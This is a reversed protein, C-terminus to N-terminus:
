DEVPSWTEDPNYEEMSGAILATDEGLDKELVQGQHSVVFTKIGSNAYDAPFAVLAFGGIMNNNILYDYRGGPPNLGQRTLVMFFYGRYPDGYEHGELYARADAVLPGFPSLPEGEEPEWYLGDRRGPRSAIRTAYERVEDEDRDVSAYEHQAAVFARAVEIANLENGGIRRNVLEEIGAATDFRWRGKERVIPFPMPWVKPGILLTRRGDGDSRLGQLEQAIEGLRHMGVLTASEDGGLIKEEFDRDLLTFLADFGEGGLAEVMAQAAAEPTEFDRVEAAAAGGHLLLALVAAGAAGAARHLSQHRM